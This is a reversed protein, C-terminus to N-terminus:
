RNGHLVVSMSMEGNGVSWDSLDNESLYIFIDQQRVGPNACLNKAIEAYLERKMADSRGRRMAIQIVVLTDSRDIGLYQRDFFLEDPKYESILQFFDDEPIGISDVLARHIGKAINEKDESTLGASVATRIFPMNNRERTIPRSLM